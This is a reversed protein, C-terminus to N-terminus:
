FKIGGLFQLGILSSHFSEPGILDTLGNTYEARCEFFLLNKKFIERYFGLGTWFGFQTSKRPLAPLFDFVVKGEAEVERLYYQNYRLNLTFSGGLMLYPTFTRESFSYKVGLPVKLEHIDFNYTHRSTIVGSISTTEAFSFFNKYYYVVGTNLTTKEQLRPFGIDVLLGIGPSFSTTYNSKFLRNLFNHYDQEVYGGLKFWTPAFVFAAGYDIAVWPKDKKNVAYPLGMCIHYKEFLQTLHKEGMNLKGIEPFLEFCDRMLVNLVSIHKQSRRFYSNGHVFVREPGFSIQIPMDEGSRHAFFLHQYRFLTLEGTFLEEAFVFLFDFSEPQIKKSKYVRGDSYGYGLIQSPHFKQIPDGINRAFECVEFRLAGERYAVYGFVSDRELSILYGPRFEQANLVMVLSLSCFLVIIKRM